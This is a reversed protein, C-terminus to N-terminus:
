ASADRVITGATPSSASPAGKPMRGALFANRRLKGFLSGFVSYIALCFALLIALAGINEM